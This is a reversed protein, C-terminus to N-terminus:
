SNTAVTGAALVALLHLGGGSTAHCSTGASDAPLCANGRSRSTFIHVLTEASRTPHSKHSWPLGRPRETRPPLPRKRPFTTFTAAAVMTIRDSARNAASASSKVRLASTYVYPRGDARQVMVPAALRDVV